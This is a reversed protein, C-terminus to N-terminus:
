RAVVEAVQIFLVITGTDPTNSGVVVTVPRVGPADYMKWTRDSQGGLPAVLQVAYEECPVNTMSFAGNTQGSLMKPSSGISSDMCTLVSGFLTYSYGFGVSLSSLMTVSVSAVM